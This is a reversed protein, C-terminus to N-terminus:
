LNDGVRFYFSAGGEKNNEAEITGGHAEIIHRSINLGLGYGKEQSSGKNYKDFIKPLDSVAIGRGTDKVCVKGKEYSVVIEGKDTFKLANSILNSFVRKILQYDANVKVENDILNKLKINKNEAVASLETITEQVCDKLKFKTK